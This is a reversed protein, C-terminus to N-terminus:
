GLNIHEGDVRVDKDALITVDDGKMWVGARVLARLRGAKIECLESVRQYLNEAQDIVRGASRLLTGFRLEADDVSARLSSARARSAGLSLDSEAASVRVAEGELAIEGESVARIGEAAHLEIAGRPASIRLDGEPMVLTGRGSTADYEFLVRGVRDRVTLVEAEGRREVTASAGDRTTVGEGETEIRRAALM